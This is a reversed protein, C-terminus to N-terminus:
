RLVCIAFNDLNHSTEESNTNGIGWWDNQSMMEM